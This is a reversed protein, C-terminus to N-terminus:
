NQPESGSSDTIKFRKNLNQIRSNAYHGKRRGQRQNQRSFYTRM